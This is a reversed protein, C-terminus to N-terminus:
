ENNEYMYEVAVFQFNRYKKKFKQRKLAMGPAYPTEWALPRILATAVPRCWLWLVALGKVWQALGPIMGANEHM